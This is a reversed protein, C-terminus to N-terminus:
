DRGAGAKKDHLKMLKYEMLAVKQILEKNRNKLDSVVLSFYLMAFFMLFFIAVFVLVPPYHIGLRFALPDLILDAFSSLIVGIGLILWVLSLEERFRKKRVLNLILIFMLIGILLVFIRASFAM